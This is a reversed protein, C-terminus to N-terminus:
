VLAPLVYNDVWENIEQKRIEENFFYRDIRLPEVLIKGGINEIYKILHDVAGCFFTFDRDGLGFVIFKKEPFKSEESQKMFEVFDYHPYGEHRGKEDRYDWSHSGFIVVDYNHLDEPKVERIQKLTVEHKHSILDAIQQSVLYTSGSNTAYALLANM